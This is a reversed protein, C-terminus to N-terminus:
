SRLDSDKPSAAKVASCFASSIRMRLTSRAVAAEIAARSERCKRRQTRGALRMALGTPYIAILVHTRSKWV